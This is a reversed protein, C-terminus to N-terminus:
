SWDILIGKKLEDGYADQYTVKCNPFKEQFLPILEEIPVSYTADYIKKNGEEIVLPPSSTFKMKTMNYFFSTDGYGATQHLLHIFQSILRMAEKKKNEITSM